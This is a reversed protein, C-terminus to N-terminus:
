SRNGESYQVMSLNSTIKKSVKSNNCQRDNLNMSLHQEWGRKLSQLWSYNESTQGSRRKSSEVLNRGFSANNEKQLRAQFPSLRQGNRPRNKPPSTWESRSFSDHEFSRQRLFCDRPKQQLINPLNELKTPADRSVERKHPLLGPMTKQCHDWVSKENRSSDLKVTWNISQDDNSKHVFSKSKWKAIFYGIGLNKPWSSPPSM